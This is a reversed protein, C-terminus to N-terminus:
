RRVDEAGMQEARAKARLPTREVMDGLTRAVRYALSGVQHRLGALRATDHSRLSLSTNLNDRYWESLLLIYAM